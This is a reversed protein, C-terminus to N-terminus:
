RITAQLLQYVHFYLCLHGSHQRRCLQLLTSDEIGKNLLYLFIRWLDSANGDTCLLGLLASSCFLGDSLEAGRPKHASWDSYNPLSVGSSSSLLPDILWGRTSDSSNESRIDEAKVYSSRLTSYPLMLRSKGVGSKSTVWQGHNSGTMLDDDVRSASTLTDSVMRLMIWANLSSGKGSCPPSSHILPPWICWSPRGSVAPSLRM